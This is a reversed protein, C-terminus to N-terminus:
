SILCIANSLGHKDIKSKLGGISYAYSRVRNRAEEDTMDASLEASTQSIQDELLKITSPEDFVVGPSELVIAFTDGSNDGPMAIQTKTDPM